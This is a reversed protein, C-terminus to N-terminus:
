HSAVTTELIERQIRKELGELESRRRHRNMGDRVIPLVEDLFSRKEEPALNAERAWNLSQSGLVHFPYHTENGWLQIVEKLNAMGEALLDNAGVSNPNEWAKRMLM